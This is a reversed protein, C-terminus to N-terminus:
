NIEVMTFQPFKTAVVYKLSSIRQSKDEVEVDINYKYNLILQPATAHKKISIIKVLGDPCLIEILKVLSAINVGNYRITQMTQYLPFFLTTDLQDTETKNESLFTFQNGYFDTYAQNEAPVSKVASEKVVGAREFIDEEDSYIYGQVEETGTMSSKLNETAHTNIDANTDESFSFDFTETTRKLLGREGREQGSVIHGETMKFSGYRDGVSLRPLYVGAFRGINYIEERTMDTPNFQMNHFHALFAKEDETFRNLTNYITNLYYGNLEGRLYRYLAKSM